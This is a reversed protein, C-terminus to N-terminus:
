NTVVELQSHDRKTYVHRLISRTAPDIWLTESGSPYSLNVAWAERAGNSTPVRERRRVHITDVEIADGGVFPLVVEYGQVLPVSQVVVDDILGSFSPTRTTLNIARDASDKQTVRGTVRTGAFSVIRTMGGHSREWIPLLTTREFLLSDITVHGPAGFTMVQIVAPSGRYTTFQRQTTWGSTRSAKAGGIPLLRNHVVGEVIHSTVFVPAGSSQAAVVSAVFAFSAAVFLSAYTISLRDSSRM